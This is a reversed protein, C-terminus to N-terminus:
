KSISNKTCIKAFELIDIMDDVKQESKLEVGLPVKM